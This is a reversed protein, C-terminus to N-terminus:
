ELIDNKECFGNHGVLFEWVVLGSPLLFYFKSFHVIKSEDQNSCFKIVRFIYIVRSLKPLWKNVPTFWKLSEHLLGFHKVENATKVRYDFM